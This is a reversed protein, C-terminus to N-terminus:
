DASTRGGKEIWVNATKCVLTINDYDANITFSRNRQLHLGADSNIVISYGVGAKRWLTVEDMESGGTIGTLIDAIDGEGILHIHGEGEAVTIVGGSITKEVSTQFPAYSNNELGSLDEKWRLFYGAAPDPITLGSYTSHVSFLLGRGILEKLQKILIVAKDYTAEYTDDRSALTTSQVYSAGSLIDITAGDAPIYAGGFVINGGADNEVDAGDVTFEIDVSQVVGDVYVDLDDQNYIIFEFPYTDLAGNGVHDNRITESAISM